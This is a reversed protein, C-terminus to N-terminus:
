VAGLPTQGLLSRADGPEFIKSATVHAVAFSQRMAQLTLEALPVDYVGLALPDRYVYFHFARDGHPSLWVIDDFRVDVAGAAVGGFTLLYPGAYQYRGGIGVNVAATEDDFTTTPFAATVSHYLDGGNIEETSLRLTLWRAANSAAESGLQEEVGNAARHWLEVTYVGGTNRVGLSLMERTVENVFAIGAECRNPLATPTIKAHLMADRADGQIESWCSGITWKSPVIMTSLQLDDGNDAEVRLAGGTVSWAVNAGGRTRWVHPNITGAAFDDVRRDSFALIEVDAAVMGLAEALTQAVVPPSSGETAAFKAAVRERRREISDDPRRGSRTITEWERLRRGYARTPITNRAFDEVRARAYGLANGILRFLQRQDGTPSKSLAARPPRLEVFKPYGAPQFHALRLWNSAIEEHSKIGKTVVLAGIDGEFHDAFGAGAGRAGVVTTGTTGGGIIGDASEYIGLLLDGAYYRLEVATPSIWRRTVTYYTWSAVPGLTIEPGDQDHRTGGLDQWWARLKGTVGSLAVLDLGYAVREAASGGVGRAIITGVTGAADQAPLNWRAIVEITLDRTSLTSGPSQDVAVLASGDTFRRAPGIWGEVYDPEVLAGVVDLDQLGGASDSALVDASAEGLQLSIAPTDGDVLGIAGQADAVFWPVPTAM